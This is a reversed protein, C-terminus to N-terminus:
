KKKSKIEEIWHDKVRVQLFAASGLKSTDGNYAYKLVRMVFYDKIIINEAAVPLNAATLKETAVQRCKEESPKLLVITVAALVLPIVALLFKRM